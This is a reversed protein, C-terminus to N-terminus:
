CVVCASSPDLLLDRHSSSVCSPASVSVCDGVLLRAGDAISFLGAISLAAFEGVSHGLCMVGRLAAGGEGDLSLLGESQQRPM